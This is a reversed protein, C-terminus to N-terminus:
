LFQVRNTCTSVGFLTIITDDSLDYEKQLTLLSNVFHHKTEGTKKRAIIHEEMITRSFKDLYRDQAEIAENYYKFAWCLSPVFEGLKLKGFIKFGNTLIIKLDQGQEDVEGQSNMFRKGFRLRTKKNFAVIRLYGRLMMTESVDGTIM